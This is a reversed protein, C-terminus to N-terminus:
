GKAHEAELRQLLARAEALAERAAKEGLVNPDPEEWLLNGLFGACMRRPLPLNVYYEIDAELRQIEAHLYQIQEATTPPPEPPPAKMCIPDGIQPRKRTDSM